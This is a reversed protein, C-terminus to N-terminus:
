KDQNLPKRSYKESQIWISNSSISLEAVISGGTPCCYEDGYNCLSAYFKMNSLDVTYGRCFSYGAPIKKLVNAWDPVGLRQWSDNRLLFYAGFDFGGNGGTMFIHMITGYKTAVFQPPEIREIFDAAVEQLDPLAVSTDQATKFVHISLIEYIGHSTDDYALKTKYIGYFYSKNKIQGIRGFEQLMCEGDPFDHLCTDVHTMLWQISQVCPLKTNDNPNQIQGMTPITIFMVSVLLAIMKM